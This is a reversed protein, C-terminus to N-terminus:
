DVVVELNGNEFKSVRVNKSNGNELGNIGKINNALNKDQTMLQLNGTNGDSLFYWLFVHDATIDLSGQSIDLVEVFGREELYNIINLASIAKTIDVRKKSHDQSIRLLEKKVIPFTYFKYGFKKIERYNQFLSNQFDYNMFTCTDVFVKHTKMQELLSTTM